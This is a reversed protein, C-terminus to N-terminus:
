SVFEWDEVNTALNKLFNETFEKDDERLLLVFKALHKCFKKAKSRRTEFDHCNHRILKKKLDVEINYFDETSGVVTSKIFGSEKNFEKRQFDIATLSAARGLTDKDAFQLLLVGFVTSKENKIDTESQIEQKATELNKLVKIKRKKQWDQLKEALTTSLNLNGKEEKILLKNELCNTIFMIAEEPSLLFLEYSIKFMLDNPNINPLDIIKWFYLLMETLNDRNIAFNM